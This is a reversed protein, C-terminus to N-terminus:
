AYNQQYKLDMINMSDQFQFYLVNSEVSGFYGIM